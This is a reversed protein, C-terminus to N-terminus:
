ETCVKIGIRSSYMVGASGPRSERWQTGVWDYGCLTSARGGELNAGTCGMPMEDGLANWEGHEKGGKRGNETLSRVM